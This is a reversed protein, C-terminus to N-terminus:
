PQELHKLLNAVALEGMRRTSASTYGGLHPTAIVRPHSLLPSPAPPESDYADVAYAALHGSELAALVAQGDVLSARATNVLVAGAPLAAVQAPGLLVGGGPPPPCHLTVIDSVAVLEDLTLHHHVHALAADRDLLPDHGVVHAGLSKAFGAVLRGIAGLGVVGVTCDPLERGPTREWRGEALARAAPAAQRLGALMLTLALEAVGRANAGVAREVVVGHRAAAALDVADVGVGYRSIVRLDTAAALTDADITEVGAIWHTIGPVLRLLDAKAPQRGAPGPVLDCGRQRLPQLAAVNDLGAATM